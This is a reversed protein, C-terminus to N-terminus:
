AMAARPHINIAGVPVAAFAEGVVGQHRWQLEMTDALANWVLVVVLKAEGQPVLFYVATGAAPAGPDAVGSPPAAFVDSRIAGIDHTLMESFAPVMEQVNSVLRYYGPVTAVDGYALDDLVDTSVGGDPGVGVTYLRTNKGPDTFDFITRDHVGDNLSRNTEFIEVGAVLPPPAEKDVRVTGANELGDTMLLVSYYNDAPTGPLGLLKNLAQILGDGIPTFSGPSGSPSAPLLRSCQILVLPVM